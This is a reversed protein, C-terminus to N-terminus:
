FVILRRPDVELHPHGLRHGRSPAYRGHHTFGRTFAAALDEGRYDAYYGKTEGTLGVHLADHFDDNWQADLGWGAHDAPRTLRPDDDASQAIVLVSRGAERARHHLVENLHEVYPHASADVIAHVADLRFADVHAHVAFFAASETFFSRVPDAGPGDFNLAAGWPTRYRDTFYPGFHALVNGEPGLHNHVVDLCVALGAAHAAD